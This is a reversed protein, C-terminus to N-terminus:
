EIPSSDADPSEPVATGDATETVVPSHETPLEEDSRPLNIPTQAPAEPVLSAEDTWAPLGQRDAPGMYVALGIFGAILIVCAGAIVLFVQKNM